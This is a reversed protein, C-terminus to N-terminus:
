KIAERSKPQAIPPLAESQHRAGSMDAGDLVCNELHAQELNASALSAGKFTAGKAKVMTMDASNLVAGEFNAHDLVSRAM